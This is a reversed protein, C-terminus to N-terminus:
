VGSNPGYVKGMFEFSKQKLLNYNLAFCTAATIGGAPFGLGGYPMTLVAGALTGILTLYWFRGMTSSVSSVVFIAAPFGVVIAAIWLAISWVAIGDLHDLPNLWNENIGVLASITVLVFPAAIVSAVFLRVLVSLLQTLKTSPAQFM